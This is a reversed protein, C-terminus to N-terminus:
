CRCVVWDVDVTLRNIVAGRIPCRPTNHYAHTHTNTQGRDYGPVVRGIKVLKKRNNGTAMTRDEEIPM